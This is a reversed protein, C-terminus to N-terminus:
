PKSIGHKALLERLTKRNLGAQEAARTVNFDFRHMLGFLYRYEFDSVLRDKAEKFALGSFSLSSQESRQTDSLWLSLESFTRASDPRLVWARELVNRLERM